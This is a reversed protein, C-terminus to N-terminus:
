PQSREASTMEAFTKGPIRRQITIAVEHPFVSERPNKADFPRRTEGFFFASQPIHEALGIHKLLAYKRRYYQTMEPSAKHGLVSYKFVYRDTNHTFVRSDTGAKWPGKEAARSHRIVSMHKDLVQKRAYMKLVKEAADASDPKARELPDIKRERAELYVELADRVQEPVDADTGTFKYVSVEPNDTPVRVRQPKPIYERM